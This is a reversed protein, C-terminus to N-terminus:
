SLNHGTLSLDTNLRFVEEASRLRIRLLEELHANTVPSCRYLREDYKCIGRLLEPDFSALYSSQVNQKDTMEVVAEKWDRFVAQRELVYTKRLRYDIDMLRPFKTLYKTPDSAKAKEM